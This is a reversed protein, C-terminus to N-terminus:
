VQSKFDKMIDLFRNYVDPKEQFQVKVADLYSLADTVDLPRGPEPSPQVGSPTRMGDMANLRPTRSKPARMTPSGSRSSTLLPPILRGSDSDNFALSSLSLSAGSLTAVVSDRLEQSRARTASEPQLSSPEFPLFSSQPIKDERPHHLQSSSPSPPLPAPIPESTDM